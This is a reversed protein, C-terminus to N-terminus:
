PSTGFFARRVDEAALEGPADSGSRVAQAMAVIAAQCEPDAGNAGNREFRLVESVVSSDGYAVLRAKAQAFLAFAEAQEAENRAFANKAMARVFDSFAESALEGRHKRAELNKAYRATLAVGAVLASAGILAGVVNPLVSTAFVIVPVV